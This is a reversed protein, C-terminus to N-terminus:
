TPATNGEKDSEEQENEDQNPQLVDKLLKKKKIPNALFNM